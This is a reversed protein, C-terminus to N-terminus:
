RELAGKLIWTRVMELEEDIFHGPHKGSGVKKILESSDPDGPTIVKANDKGGALAALYITLDLGGMHSATSHCNGCRNKFLDGIGGEWTYVSAPALPAVGTTEGPQPVSPKVAPEGSGTSPPVNATGQALAAKNEPANNLIWQRVKELEDDSLQGPHGGKKMKQVLLSNDPDGPLIVKDKSGILATAYASLDLNSMHTSASHCASCKNKFIPGIDDDWTLTPAEIPQGTSGEPISPETTTKGPEETSSAVPKTAPKPVAKRIGPAGDSIWTRLIDLEEKTFHGFHGGSQVKSVLRSAAPNGKRIVKLAAAYASLNLGGSLSTENHCSGCRSRVISGIKNEWTYKPGTPAGTEPGGPTLEIGATSLPMQETGPPTWNDIGEVYQGEPAGTEIWRSVTKLQLPTLRGPHAGGEIKNLLLSLDPDGPVIVKDIGGAIAGQYSQLNLSGMILPDGHCSGCKARLLVGIGSGWTPEAGNALPGPLEALMVDQRALPSYINVNEPPVVMNITTKELRTLLFVGLMIMATLAIYRPLLIRNWRAIKKPDVQPRLKGARIDMLELAHEYEMQEESLYGTFMSKNLNKVLVFYFHWIIIALVALVAEYGHAIKAAPIFEGPLFNATTIPNWMMFGTIAMLITGWIVAWYEAKEAFTYRGEKPFERSFGINYLFACWATKVDFWGPLMDLREGRVYVRYQVAGLHFIAEAIMLIAATHHILRTQEIGGLMIIIWKSIGASAFMQVLGTVALMVFVIALVWHEVRYSLPFRLYQQQRNEAM